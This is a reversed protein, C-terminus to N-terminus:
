EGVYYCKEFVSNEIIRANAGIYCCRATVGDEIVCNDEIICDTLNCKEGIVCNNGISCKDIFTMIGMNVDQGVMNNTWMTKKIITQNLTFVDLMFSLDIFIGKHPSSYCVEDQIYKKITFNEMMELPVVDNNVVYQQLDINVHSATKLRDTLPFSGTVQPVFSSPQIEFGSYRQPINLSTLQQNVHVTLVGCRAHSRSMTQILERFNYYIFHNLNIIISYKQGVNHKGFDFCSLQQTFVQQHYQQSLDQRGLRVARIDVNYMKSLPRSLQELKDFHEFDVIIFIHKLGSLSTLASIAYEILLRNCVHLYAVQVEKNQEHMIQQNYSFIYACSAM